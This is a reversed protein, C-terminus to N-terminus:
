RVAAATMENARRRYEALLKKTIPGPAGSGITQNDVQVIPM